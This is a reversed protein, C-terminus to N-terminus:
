HLVKAPFFIMNLKCLVQLWTSLGIPKRRHKEFTYKKIGRKKSWEEEALKLLKALSKSDVRRNTSLQYFSFYYSYGYSKVLHFSRAAIQMIELHFHGIRHKCFSSLFFSHSFLDAAWLIFLRQPDDLKWGFSFFFFHVCTWRFYVVFIM